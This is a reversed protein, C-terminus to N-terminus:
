FFQQVGFSWDVTDDKLIPKAYDLRIVFRYFQPLILRIGGGVSAAKLNTLASTHEGIAALDTFAAIQLVASPKNMVMYRLESNSLAFQKGAFRNDSFGRIRDLGGLYYWYQLVKTSSYGGLLRQAFQWRGHFAKYFNFSIDTQTFSDVNKDLPHAYSFYLGTLSGNLAQPEGEIKGLELGVKSILLETAPPLDPNPGLKQLVEDPLVDTSFNDKNYEVAARATAGPWVERFYDVYFKEREHLFGTKIEPGDLAQDYKIRIRKTNWYQIDIGQRQDFLRPNKFWVVASDTGGLNEYQAGSELFRGFINPDYLGVTYQAIGGGSNVKVIPITTWREKVTVQLQGVDPATGPVIRYEVSSFLGTSKTRAIGARVEEECIKQGSRINLEREIVRSKTKENGSITISEITTQVGATCSAHSEAAVSVLFTLVLFHFAVAVKM